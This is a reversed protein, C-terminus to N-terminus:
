PWSYLHINKNRGRIAHSGVSKLDNFGNGISQDDVESSEISAQTLIEESVLLQKNLSRCLEQLRSTTNVTDGIVTFSMSEQVGIDGLVVDGYHATIDAIIEQRGHHIRKNNWKSLVALMEKSCQLANTADSPKTDPVGFVALLSDGGFHEISGNYKFIVRAMRQYFSRLMAIVKEPEMSEAFTTSGEIDIFLVAVKQKRIDGLPNDREALHEATLPSFYRSLNMRKRNAEAALQRTEELKRAMEVRHTVDRQVAIYYEPKGQTDPISSISWEMVFESRDKKYNVTQGQWVQGSKLVEVMDKFVSHDTNPGQLIRPSQGIIEDRSWGTMNEFAANAYIITPGPHDFDNSTILISDTAYELVKDAKLNGELNIM